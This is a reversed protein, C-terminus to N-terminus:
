PLPPPGDTPTLHGSSSTESKPTYLEELRGSSDFQAMGLMNFRVIESILRSNPSDVTPSAFPVGAHPSCPGPSYSMEAFQYPTGVGQLAALSTASRVAQYGLPSASFCPLLTPSAAAAMTSPPLNIPQRQVAANKRIVQIQGTEDLTIPRAKRHLRLYLGCANCLLEQTEPHRRWSPTTATACNACRKCSGDQNIAPIIHTGSRQRGPATFASMMGSSNSRRTLNGTRPMHALRPHYPHSVPRLSRRLVRQEHAPALPYGTGSTPALTQSDLSSLQPASGGFMPLQLDSGAGPQLAGARMDDLALSLPPSVSASSVPPPRPQYQGSFLVDIADIDGSQTSSPTSFSFSSASPHTSLPTAGGSGHIVPPVPSHPDTPTAM